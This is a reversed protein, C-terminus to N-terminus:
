LPRKTLIKIVRLSKKKLISIAAQQIVPNLEQMCIVDQLALQKEDGLAALWIPERKEWDMGSKRPRALEQYLVEDLINTSAINITISNVNEMARMSCRLLLVSFLITTIM